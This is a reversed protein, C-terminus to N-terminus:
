PEFHQWDFWIASNKVISYRLFSSFSSSKQCASLCQLIRCTLVIMKAPHLWAHGFYGFYSELDKCCGWFLYCKKSAVLCLCKICNSLVVKATNGLCAGLIWFLNVIDKCYILSFTFSLTSKKGTSLCSGLLSIM